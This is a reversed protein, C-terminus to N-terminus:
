RLVGELVTIIDQSSINRVDKDLCYRNIILDQNHYPAFKRPDTAGYLGLVKTGTADALHLLGTDASIVCRAKSALIAYNILDISFGQKPVTNIDSRIRQSDSYEEGSGVLVVELGHNQCWDAVDDYTEPKCKKKADSAGLNIIVYNSRPGIPTGNMLVPQKKYDIALDFSLNKPIGLLDAFAMFGDVMHLSGADLGAKQTDLKSVQKATVITDITFQKPVIVLDYSRGVLYKDFIKKECEFKKKPDGNVSAQWRAYALPDQSPKPLHVDCERVYSGVMRMLDRLPQRNPIPIEIIAGPFADHLTHLLPISFVMDGIGRPPTYLIKKIQNM